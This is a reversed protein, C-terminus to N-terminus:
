LAILNFMYSPSSSIFVATFLFACIRAISAPPVIVSV